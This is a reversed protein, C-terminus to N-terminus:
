TCLCVFGIGSMCTCPCRDINLFSISSGNLKM